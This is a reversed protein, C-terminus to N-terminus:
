RQKRRTAWVKLVDRTAKKVGSLIVDDETAIALGVRNFGKESFMRLFNAISLRPNTGTKMEIIWKEKNKMAKIDYYGAQARPFWEKITFGRGVLWDEVKREGTKGLMSVEKQKDTLSGLM